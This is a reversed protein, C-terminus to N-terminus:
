IIFDKAIIFFESSEKRTAKPRFRNVTGFCDSMVKMFEVFYIICSVRMCWLVIIGKTEPGQWIKCLLSGHPALM